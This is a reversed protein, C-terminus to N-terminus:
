QANLKMKCLFDSQSIIFPTLSVSCQVRLTNHKKDGTQHVIAEQGANVMM